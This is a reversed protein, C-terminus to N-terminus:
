DPIFTAEFKGRNITHGTGGTRQVNLFLTTTSGAAVTLVRSIPMPIVTVAATPWAAEIRIFSSNNGGPCDTATTGISGLVISITGTVHNLLFYGEARAVIKGAVPAVVVLQAGNANTCASTIAGAGFVSNVSFSKVQAKNVNRYYGVVDIILHSQAVDAKVILDFTCVTTAANCVPQALGNAINLGSLNSYNIVSALPEVPAAAWPFARFDGPGAPGVAIFNMEVATAADPIGCGGANGGQAEFVAAASGNVYFARSTNAALPTATAVTNVVRCPTIPTFVLDAASDGLANPVLGDINGLGGANAFAELAASDAGGLKEAILGRLAGSFKRGSASERSALISAILEQRRRGERAAADERLQADFDVLAGTVPDVSQADVGRVAAVSMGVTVVAVMWRCKM